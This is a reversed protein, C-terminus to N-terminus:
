KTLFYFLILFDFSLKKKKKKFGLTIFSHKLNLETKLMSCQRMIQECSRNDVFICNHSLSIQDNGGVTDVYFIKM